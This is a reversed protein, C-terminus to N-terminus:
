PRRPLRYGTSPVSPRSQPAPLNALSSTVVVPGTINNYVGGAIEHNELVAGYTTNADASDVQAYVPTGAALPWTVQSYDAVYYADGVTLTLVNGPGMDATVGWVLGQDGLDPWIQNVRTPATRPNVYVEVWFDDVAAANGQNKIVVQINNRTAVIREVILDPAVVYQRMVLPMFVRLPHITVPTTATVSNNGNTATVVATFTGLRSYTHTVVSGITPASGDGFNWTYVINDGSATATFVTPNHVITPSSNSATLGVIAADSVTIAVTGAVSSQLGRADTVTLSFRLVTPAGPAMFTPRSIANSSLIVLDGGTQTWNYSVPVHGDPDSSGSGDLTVPSNVRVTQDPGANAAPPQNTVTVSTTATLVSVSNTATVIVPYVGATPFTSNVFQGNLTVGSGLNWEYTVNSGAAVTASLFTAQGLTTPSSSTAQLNAIPVQSVTVVVTDPALAALGLSDTVTLTFTLVSPTGPATFTPQSAARDSLTVASGGTQTWLHTLPYHQDPDASGTGDLTVPDNVFVSQDAGAHAAPPSNVFTLGISSSNNNPDTDLTTTTITATNNFVGPTLGPVFAGTITITGGAGPMLDAVQWAYTIGATRTIATGSSAYSLNSFVNPVVDTILVHIAPQPGRNLYSLTYTIPQGVVASGPTVTKVIELDARIDLPTTDSSTNNALNADAGNSGDDGIEASNNVQQVGPPVPTNVAVAFRAMGNAGGGNVDGVSFTCTTGAPSGNACSWGATSSGANFTTNAPVTETLTVGTAGRNGLNTYTLTYVATNGPTTIVDGDSKTVALDPAANVPTTDSGSNNGPTPDAGNAGDDSVSATNSIQMVGAPVPNVVAVAFTATGNAGGGNLSGVSFTCTTGAPSDNACSWGATSSGANFATNAPVTEALTVGTAGQNGTNTYALTYVVVGGPVTTAEGDSKTVALDPTANVPTTDSSVNNGPNPDAGNSGDNGISASNDIQTVGAAAPNVVTVAFRASGNSLPALTGLSLTCVTGAPSGNACSWGAASATADFITNAPVTETVITNPSALGGANAYTLTYVITDGPVASVSGDSKALSLDPINDIPTTDTSVNNGPTLDAGNAGDDYIGATNTITSESLPFPLSVNVAFLRSGSAGGGGLNGATLSCLTGAPDGNACSWGASSAAASFTTNAPVVDTLVIGTAGQNGTNTYFLTYAVTGGPTGRVGGDNKTLTLDPAANVPTTDSSTNDSLNSDPGSLGDDGVTVTNTIQTVGAPVPNVVRVAFIVSGNSAGSALSGIGWTCVTGASSGDPCSLFGNSDVLSFTTNAPVTETLVVGSADQNGINQVLFQYLIINGPAFTLGGDTKWISLDPAANVPTTDSATNNGPTSDAGNSGDDGVSATNLIQEVGAPVLSDMTVAFARSGGVGGGALSGVTLTCLTGAPAGSICSWDASSSGANFTTNAPVTETLTVGTAGQNGTNTYYLTYVVSGGPSATAGGDNKTLALDPAANVPTTDSGTNNGPAPDDTNSGITSTNAIQTVGAPVPNSVTVAFVASGSANIGLVGVNFTCTAGACTWGPTSGASYFTTNAPITETLVVGSASDPGANTYNLTYAIAGGPTVTAGGDSKTLALDAPSQVNVNTTVTQGDLTASPAGTGVSTGTYASAATGSSTAASPPSVTGHSDGAFTVTTGDPISFGSGGSSNHSIDATLTASGGVNITTPVASLGLVLWPSSTVGTSVGNPTGSCGAGGAGPGYNCGWWDNQATTTAGAANYVGGGSTTATNGVIRSLSINASGSQIYFAGGLGGGTGTASNNVFASGTVNLTGGGVFHIAGGGVNGTSTGTASNGTFTSTNINHTLGATSVISIAGGPIEYVTANNVSNNSFTSGSISLVGSGGSYNFRIAGGESAGASNNSFTCNTVTLNGGAMQVGGGPRATSTATGSHNNTIVCNSLSLNDVPTSSVSGALIGAGGFTDAIDHGGQITVGSITVNTSGASNWDINFVRNTGDTQNIITNAAGAGSITITRGGNPAVSLEGLSVNFTGAPVNITTPTGSTNAEEIAARLSCNGGSDACAGNGASADHTDVPTNVNFPGAAYALRVTMPAFALASLMAIVVALSLAHQTFTSRIRLRKGLRVLSFRSHQMLRALPYSFNNSM